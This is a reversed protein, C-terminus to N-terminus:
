NGIYEVWDFDKGSMQGDQTVPGRCLSTLHSLLIYLIATKDGEHRNSESPGILVM